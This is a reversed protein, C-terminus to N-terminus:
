AAIAYFQEASSPKDGASTQMQGKRIMAMVEIGALTRQAAHFNKFGLMPRTLRKIRRHDQEIINNLYKCQRIKIRTKNDRNVQKLGANNAGSQDINVLSPKGNENIAKRLFRSAAKKDRTATLLFDITQGQKDVARYYYKWQGKVKIYTEDMRWRKGVRNKKRRFAADLQPSYHLVWRNLTSHDVSFGREHMLEEIDRYSLSYALYWRVSQLIMDHQFHRGKFSITPM